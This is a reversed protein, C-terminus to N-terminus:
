GPHVFGPSEKMAERYALLTRRACEKWTFERSRLRGKKAYERAFDPEALMRRAAEFIRGSDTPEVLLAADGLVEPMSTVCSSVVPIGCAMAELPPLGFGENLSAFLFLDAQSYLRPLDAESVFRRWEVRARAPSQELAREFVDAGHGPPGAIIWRHPLGEKVIREFAELMRLHNKRADVRSVTLVYPNTPRPFGEPPLNRAVHDCGLHAIAIKAPPVGFTLVIEAGVYESPAIVLKVRSILEKASATMRVAAERSLYGSGEGEEAGADLTYITDFITGVEVARRVKLLHPNTHHYVDCGGVLDDVGKGLRELLAPIWRSPFRLRVLEARTGAIGLEDRRFKSGALTYAFLGLHAGFELDLFGRVLERAYRGIGERNILAPRYDFGVRV